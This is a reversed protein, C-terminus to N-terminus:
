GPERQARRWPSLVARDTLSSLYDAVAREPGEESAIQRYPPSLEDVTLLHRQYLEDLAAIAEARHTLVRPHRYVQRFLLAQFERKLEAMESSPAALLPSRRVDALSDIGREALRAKAATHLDSVQWDLLEHIVCRRHADASLNAYRQAVRATARRWKETQSLEAPTIMGLVLADDADHADYAVSDAADVVQVELPPQETAAGKEARRRQGALVEQSLNLGPFEPYREELRTFIRVAQANHNFGGVHRLRENLLAEGAHGFPPHGVDHALALAEVLDENLALARALTRAVSAVELTHTLRTRHYDGLDGTFVQTKHALRRYAASHIIRDRDRQFPSRWPHAPEPHERGASAASALAYPALILREREVYNMMLRRAGM